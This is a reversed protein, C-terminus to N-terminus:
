EDIEVTPAEANSSETPLNDFQKRSIRISKWNFKLDFPLIMFITVIYSFIWIFVSSFVFTSFKVTLGRFPEFNLMVFGGVTYVASFIWQIIFRNHGHDTM